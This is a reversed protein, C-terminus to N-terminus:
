RWKEVGDAIIFDHKNTAELMDLYYWANPDQLDPFHILKEPNARIYEEDAARGLMRNVIAAVEARTISGHPLFTGDPYGEVWGYAAATAISGYAWFSEPVDRFRREGDTAKAFRTAIAAFEARTIKAGGDFSGDTRGTIIGLSGLVNVADAYWADPKVDRFSVTVAVNQNRLLRYFIMAVEARTINGQPRVTGDPYGSIYPIHEDTILLESVGNDSPGTRHSRFEVIITVAAAPM